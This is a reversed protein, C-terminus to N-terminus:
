SPEIAFQRLAEGAVMAAATVVNLSRAGAALPVSVLMTAAEHVDDPVGASERGVLLIDDAQYMVDTYRQAAKTSLLILRRTGRQAAFANWSQHCMYDAKAAYDMAVRRLRADDLVFGCPMIIDFGIGLCACLRLMAGTNQPMDPQYAALRLGHM